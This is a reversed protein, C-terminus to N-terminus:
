LDSLAVAHPDVAGRFMEQTHEEPEGHEGDHWYSTHQNYARSHAEAWHEHGLHSEDNEQPRMPNEACECTNYTIGRNCYCTKGSGSSNDFSSNCGGICGLNNHWDCDM